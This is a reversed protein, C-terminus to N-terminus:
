DETLRAGGDAMALGADRGSAFGGTMFCISKPNEDLPDESLRAGGDELTESGDELFDHKWPSASSGM